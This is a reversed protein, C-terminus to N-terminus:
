CLLDFVNTVKYSIKFDTLDINISLLYDVVAGETVCLKFLCYM